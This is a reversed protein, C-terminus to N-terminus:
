LFGWRKSSLRLHAALEATETFAFVTFPGIAFEGFEDYKVIYRKVDRTAHNLGYSRLWCDWYIVRVFRLCKGQEGWGVGLLIGEGAGAGGCGWIREKVVEGV